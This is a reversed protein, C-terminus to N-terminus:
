RGAECEDPNSSSSDGQSRPCYLEAGFGAARIRACLDAADVTDPDYLVSTLSMSQVAVVDEVGAVAGLAKEVVKPCAKCYFGSTKIHIANM